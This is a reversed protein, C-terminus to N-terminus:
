RSSPLHFSCVTEPMSNMRLHADIEYPLDDGTTKDDDPDDGPNFLEKYRIALTLFTTEDLEVKIKETKGDANEVKYELKDWSFGQITASELYTNFEKFLKAFKGKATKDDPLRDFGNIQASSFLSAIDQLDQSASLPHDKYQATM